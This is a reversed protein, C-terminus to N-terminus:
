GAPSEGTHGVSDRDVEQECRRCLRAHATHESNLWVVRGTAPENSDCNPCIHESGCEPCIIARDLCERQWHEPCWCRGQREYVAPETCKWCEQIGTGDCSPCDTAAGLEERQGHCTQCRIPETM